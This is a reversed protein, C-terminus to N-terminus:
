RNGRAFADEELFQLVIDAEEQFDDEKAWSILAEAQDVKLRKVSSISWIGQILSGLQEENIQDGIVNSLVKLRAPSVTSAGQSERFHNVLDIARLRDEPKLEMAENDDGDDLFEDMEEDAPIDREDDEEEDFYAPQERLVRTPTTAEGNATASPRIPIPQRPPEQQAAVNGTQPKSPREDDRETRQTNQVQAGSAGRVARLSPDTMGTRETRETSSTDHPTRQLQELADRLNIGSLSKVKLIEMAQKPTMGLRENIFQIFQPLSVNGSGTMDGM